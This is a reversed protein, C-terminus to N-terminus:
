FSFLIRLEFIRIRVQGSSFLLVENKPLFRDYSDYYSKPVGLSTETLQVETRKVTVMPTDLRLLIQSPM